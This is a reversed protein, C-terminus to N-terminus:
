EGWLWAEVDGPEVLDAESSLPGPIKPGGVPVPAGLNDGGPRHKTIIKDIVRRAEDGREHSRKYATAEVATAFCIFGELTMNTDGQNSLLGKLYGRLINAEATDLPQVVELLPKLAQLPIICAHNNSPETM